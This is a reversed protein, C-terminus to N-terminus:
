QRIEEDASLSCTRVAKVAVYIACSIAFVTLWPPSLAPMARGRASLVATGYRLATLLTVVLLQVREASVGTYGPAALLGGFHVSRTVLRVALAIALTGVIVLAAVRMAHSLEMSPEKFSLRAWIDNNSYAAYYCWM